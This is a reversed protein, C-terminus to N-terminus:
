NMFKVIFREMFPIVRVFGSLYLYYLRNAAIHLWKNKDADIMIFKSRHMITDYKVKNYTSFYELCNSYNNENGDTMAGVRLSDNTYSSLLSKRLNKLVPNFFFGSATTVDLNNSFLYMTIMLDDSLFCSTPMNDVLSFIDEKFFKRKYAIGTTGVVLLSPSNPVYIVPVYMENDRLFVINLGVGTIAKNNSSPDSLYQNVLDRVAHKQYIKDDDFTIIITNPDHEKELTGILKTGPGYDNTRNIIVDPYSKLWEPIIYKKNERKFVYPVNVYVRTPKISQRFIGDLVPKITDIRYPTTTLSVVVDVPNNKLKHKVILTTIPGIYILVIAATLYVFGISILVYGSYKLLKKSLQDM